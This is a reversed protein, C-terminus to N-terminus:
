KPLYILMVYPSRNELLGDLSCMYDGKWLYASKANIFEKPSFVKLASLMDEGVESRELNILNISYDDGSLKDVKEFIRRIESEEQDDTLEIGVSLAAERLAAVKENIEIGM